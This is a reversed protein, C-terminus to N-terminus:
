PRQRSTAEYEASGKVESHSRSPPIRHAERDQQQRRFSLLVRLLQVFQLRRHFGILLPVEGLLLRLPFGTGRLTRNGPLREVDVEGNDVSSEFDDRSM